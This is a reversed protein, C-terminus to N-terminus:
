CVKATPLHEELSKLHDYRIDCYGAILERTASNEVIEGIENLCSAHMGSNRSIDLKRIKVVICDKIFICFM